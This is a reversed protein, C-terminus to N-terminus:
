DEGQGEEKMRALKERIAENAFWVKFGRGYLTALRDMEAVLENDIMFTQRKKLDYGKPAAKKEIFGQVEENAQDQAPVSVQERFKSM